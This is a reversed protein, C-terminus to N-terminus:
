SLAGFFLEDLVAPKLKVTELYHKRANEYRNSVRGLESFGENDGTEGLNIGIGSDRVTKAFENEVSGHNLVPLGAQLYTFTKSPSSPLPFGPEISVLGCDMEALRDLLADGSVFGHHHIEMEGARARERTADDIKDNSFVHFEVTGGFCRALQDIAGPLDRIRNVQGCFVVKVPSTADAKVVHAPRVTEWAPWIPFVGINNLSRLDPHHLYDGGPVLVRTALRMAFQEFFGFVGHAITKRGALFISSAPYIDWCIVLVRRGLLRALVIEPLNFAAATHLVLVDSSWVQRAMRPLSRLRGSLKQLIGARMNHFQLQARAIPRTSQALWAFLVGTTQSANGNSIFLVKRMGADSLVHCDRNNVHLSANSTTFM